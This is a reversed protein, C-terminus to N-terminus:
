WGNSSGPSRSSNYTPPAAPTSSRNASRKRRHHRALRIVQTAIGADVAFQLGKAQASSSIVLRIEVDLTGAAIKGLLNRLTTGGGSILVAIPLKQDLM